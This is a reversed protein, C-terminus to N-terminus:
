RLLPVPPGILPTRLPAAAGVLVVMEYGGPNTQVPVLKWNNTVWVNGAPDVQVSTLRDFGDFFYGKHRPSIPDGPRSGPRCGKTRVGCFQSVRQKGFNSVWVNDDGDVAIGWPITLGGGTFVNGASTRPRLGKGLMSLSGGRGEFDIDVPPPCPLDILGSNAIWINGRSDLAIGMPRDLGLADSDLPSGPMPTGDNDLIAVKSNGLGTIVVKGRDNAVLDFAEELGADIGSAAMPDDGPMRTVKGNGCNALWITGWKDSITGQPWDIEGAVWGADPSVATGESTFQSVSNHLPQNEDPCGPPEAAFGFNGVWIDGFPDFTIGYGAGSLGGGRFPTGEAFSGDPRFVPLLDGGCVPVTPDAGFEYNNAIYANGEADFATNGPGDLTQGDGVFRVPMTWAAPATRAPLAGRYPTPREAAFRSLRQVNHWPNKAINAVAGLAGRPRRGSPAATLRFLQSCARARRACAALMNAVSKFTALTSTEDGNPSSRLATAIRGTRPDALNAAMMAANRPGPRPGAIRRGSIFQALGYGAAATTLENVVVRGPLPAQGLMAALRGRAHGGAILYVVADARRPERIRMSFRGGPGTTTVGLKRTRGSADGSRYAEIRMGGLALKGSKVEGRVTREAGAAPPAWGVMLLSLATIAALIAAWRARPASARAGGARRMPGPGGKHAEKRVDVSVKSM